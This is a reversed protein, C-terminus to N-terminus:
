GVAGDRGDEEHGEEEINEGASDEAAASEGAGGTGAYRDLYEELCLNEDRMILSHDEGVYRIHWAEPAIGTISQKGEQYRVIFGYEWCHEHLWACQKTGLFTSTKPVNVDFSLGLHHESAGPEAVTQLAARRARSRSWGSNKKLYSSIKNNLLKEQEAYSRYGASVQWNTIGDDRAAELMTVLAEVARRVGRTEAYKIKVLKGDCVDTMRILDAPLFDEGVPHALNTLVPWEGALVDVPAPPLPAAVAEESYLRTQTQKGAIGDVSLSNRKQFAKVAERTHSGYKGDADGELYGLQILRRQLLTVEAGSSGKKLQIINEPAIIEESNGAAAEPTEEAETEAPDEGAEGPSATGLIVNSEIKSGARQVAQEPLNTGGTGAGAATAAAALIMVCVAAPLALRRGTTKKM